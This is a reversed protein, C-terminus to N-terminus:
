RGSLYRHCGPNEPRINFRASIIFRSTKKKEEALFPIHITNISDENTYQYM